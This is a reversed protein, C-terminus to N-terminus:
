DTAKEERRSKRKLPAMQFMRNKYDKHNTSAPNKDFGDQIKQEWRLPSIWYPQDKYYILEGYRVLPRGRSQSPLIHQGDDSMPLISTNGGSQRNLSIYGKMAGEQVACRTVKYCDADGDGYALLTELIDDQTVDARVIKWEKAKKMAYDLRSRSPIDKMLVDKQEESVVKWDPSTWNINQPLREKLCVPPPSEKPRSRLYELM